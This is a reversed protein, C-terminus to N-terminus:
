RRMVRKHITAISPAMADVTKKVEAVNHDTSVMISEVTEVDSTLKVTTQQLAELRNNLHVLYGSVGAMWIAMIYIKWTRKLHAVITEM